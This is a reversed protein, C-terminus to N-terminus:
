PDAYHSIHENYSDQFIFFIGLIELNEMLM